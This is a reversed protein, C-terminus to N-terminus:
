FQHFHRNRTSFIEKPEIEGGDVNLFIKKNFASRVEEM